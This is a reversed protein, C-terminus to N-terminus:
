LHCVNHLFYPVMHHRQHEDYIVPKLGDDEEKDGGTDPALADCPLRHQNSTCTFCHVPGAYGKKHPCGSTGIYPSIELFLCM